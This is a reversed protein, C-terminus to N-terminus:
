NTSLGANDDLADAVLSEFEEDQEEAAGPEQQEDEGVAAGLLDEYEEAEAPAAEPPPLM